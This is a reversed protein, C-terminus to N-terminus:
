GAFQTVLYVNGAGAPGSIWFQTLKPITLGGERSANACEDYLAFSNPPLIDMDTVGDTSVTVPVDSGNVLKVLFVNQPLPNTFPVYAGLLTATDIVQMPAFQARVSLSSAM